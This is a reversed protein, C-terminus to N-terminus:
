GASDLAPQSRGPIVWAAAGAIWRIPPFLLTAGRLAPLIVLIAVLTIGWWGALVAFWAPMALLKGVADFVGTLLSPHRVVLYVAAVRADLEAVRTGLEEGLLVSRGMLTTRRGVFAAEEVVKGSVAGKGLYKVAPTAGFVSLVDVGAWAVDPLSVGDGTRYKSELDTVGSAFLDKLVELM